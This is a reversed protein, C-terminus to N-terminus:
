SCQVPYLKINLRGSSASMWGLLFTSKTKAADEGSAGNRFENLAEKSKSFPMQWKGNAMQWKHKGLTTILVLKDAESQGM